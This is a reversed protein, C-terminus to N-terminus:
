FKLAFFNIEKLKTILVRMSPADFKKLIKSVQTRISGEEVFRQRAIDAYSNGDYIMRLIKYESSTLLAVSHLFSLADYQQKKVKACEDIVKKAICPNISIEDNYASRIAKIVSDTDDSKLLYDCAGLSLAQFILADEEHVTLMICKTDPSEEIIKELAVLGDNESEMQIDLLVVDPNKERVLQLCDDVNNASGVFEMDEEKDILVEFLRCIYPMDDCLIIKIKDM